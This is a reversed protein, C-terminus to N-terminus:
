LRQELANVVEDVTVAKMCAQDSMCENRQCCGENRQLAVHPAGYPFWVKADGPGFVAVTPLNMAVALHMPAADNTLLVRCRRMLAGLAELTFGTATVVRASTGSSLRSVVEASVGVEKPGEFIVARIKQTEMLRELTQVVRDVPWRKASWSAGPFVGVVIEEEYIRRQAYWERAFAQERSAGCYETKMGDGPIGLVELAQGYVEVANLRRHAPPVLVHSYSWRRIPYGFGVRVPAGSMWAMASTTSSGWWDVVLDYRRGRLERLWAWQTRLTGQQPWRWVQDVHPNGTLAGEFGEAVVYDLEAKPFHRRLARVAPTSLLIDGFFRFRILLIRM